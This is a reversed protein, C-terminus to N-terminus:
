IPTEFSAEIDTLPYAALLQEETKKVAIAQGNWVANEGNVYYLIRDSNNGYRKANSHATARKWVIENLFNAPGFIGNSISLAYSPLSFWSYAHVMMM